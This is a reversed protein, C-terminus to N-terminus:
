VALTRDVRASGRPEAAFYTRPLLVHIAAAGGVSVATIGGGMVEALRTATILHPQIAVLAKPSAVMDASLTAMTPREPIEFDAIFAVDVATESPTIVVRWKRAGGERGEDFINRILQRIRLPDAYVIVDPGGGALELTEEVGQTARFVADIIPGVVIPKPLLVLNDDNIRAAVVMDEVIEAADEAQDKALDLLERRQTEPLDQVDDLAIGLFGIVATLPTRLQHSLALLLLDKQELMSRSAELEVQVHRRNVLYTAFLALITSLGIGIAAWVRDVGVGMDALAESTWRFEFLWITSEDLILYERHLKRESSKLTEGAPVARISWQLQDHLSEPVAANAGEVMDIAILDWARGGETGTPNALVLYDGRAIHATFDARQATDPDVAIEEEISLPLDGTSSGFWEVTGGDTGVHGVATVEPWVFMPSLRQTYSVGPRRPQASLNILGVERSNIEQHLVEVMNQGALDLQRGVRREDNSLDLALLAATLGISILFTIAGIVVAAHKPGRREGPVGM